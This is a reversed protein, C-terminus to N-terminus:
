HAGIGYRDFLAQLETRSRPRQLALMLLIRAKAPTLERGAITGLPNDSLDGTDNRWVDGIGQRATRVVPIGKSTLERM